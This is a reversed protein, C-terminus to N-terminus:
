RGPDTWMIDIVMRYLQQDCTMVVVEQGAKMTTEDMACMAHGAEASISELAAASISELAASISEVATKASEIQHSIWWVTFDHELAGTNLVATQALTILDRAEAM